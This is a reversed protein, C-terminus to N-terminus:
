AHEALRARADIQDAHDIGVVRRDSVFDAAELDVAHLEHGAAASRPVVDALRRSWPQSITTRTSLQTILAYYGESRDM